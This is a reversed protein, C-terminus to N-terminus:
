ISVMGWVARAMSPPIAVNQVTAVPTHADEVLRLIVGSELSHEGFPDIAIWHFQEGVAEHGVNDSPRADWSPDGVDQLSALLRRRDGHAYHPYLSLAVASQKRAVWSAASNRTKSQRAAEQPM